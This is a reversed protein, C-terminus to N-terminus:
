ACWVLRQPLRCRQQIPDEQGNVQHIEWKNQYMNYMKEECKRCQITLNIELIIHINKDNNHLTSIYKALQKLHTCFHKSLLVTPAM